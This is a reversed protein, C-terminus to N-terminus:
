SALGAMRSIPVFKRTSRLVTGNPDALATMISKSGYVGERALRVEKDRRKWLIRDARWLDIAGAIDGSRVKRTTLPKAINGANFALSVLADYEHQRVRQGDLLRDVIAEYKPLVEGFLDVAQALTLLGRFTRPNVSAKAAATVGVGITWIGKSDKYRSLVVGEHAMIELRGRLSTKM